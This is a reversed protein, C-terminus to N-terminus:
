NSLWTQSKAVGYNVMNNSLPVARPLSPWPRPPCHHQAPHGLSGTWHFSYSSALLRAGMGMRSSDGGEASLGGCAAALPSEKRNEQFAPIPCVPAKCISLCHICLVEQFKKSPAAHVGVDPWDARPCTGLLMKLTLNLPQLWNQPGWELSFLFSASILYWFWVEQDAGKM